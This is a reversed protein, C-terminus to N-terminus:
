FTLRLIKEPVSVHRRGGRPSEGAVGSRWPASGMTGTVLRVRWSGYGAVGLAFGPRSALRWALGRLWAAFGLAFGPAFGLAFGLAFGPAFGLAFGLAFGPAFRTKSNDRAM